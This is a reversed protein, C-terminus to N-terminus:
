VGSISICLTGRVDICRFKFGYVIIGSEYRYKEFHAWLIDRECIYLDRSLGNDMSYHSVDVYTM